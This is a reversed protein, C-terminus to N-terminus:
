YYVLKRETINVLKNNQREERYIWNGKGEYHYTYNRLGTVRGGEMERFETENGAMDYKHSITTKLKKNGDYKQELAKRGNSDLQFIYQETLAGNPSYISNAIIRGGAYRHYVKQILSGAATYLYASDTEGKNNYWGKVTPESGGYTEETRTRDNYTYTRPTSNQWGTKNKTKIVFAYGKGKYTYERVTILSGTDDFTELKDINGGPTFSVMRKTKKLAPVNVGQPTNTETYSKVKGNLNYYYWNDQQLQQAHAVSCILLFFAVLYPLNKM